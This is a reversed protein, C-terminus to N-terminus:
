EARARRIGILRGAQAPRPLRRHAAMLGELRALADAPLPAARRTSLDVHLCMLENTAALYGEVAHYMCHFYHIRRPDHDLLQTTFSLPDGLRLEREYTAHAELTFLAHDARQRYAVGLDLLDFLRDSAHDFALLYYAMNMHGNYDIWEPPVVERHLALLASERLASMAALM